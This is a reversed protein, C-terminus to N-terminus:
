TSTRSVKTMKMIARRLGKYKQHLQPSKCGRGSCKELQKM